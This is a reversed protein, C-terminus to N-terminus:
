QSTASNIHNEKAHMIAKHITQNNQKLHNLAEGAHSLCFRAQESDDVAIHGTAIAYAHLQNREMFKFMKDGVTYIWWADEGTVHTIGALTKVIGIRSAIRQKKTYSGIVATQTILRTVDWLRQEKAASDVCDMLGKYEIIGQLFKDKEYAMAWMDHSLSGAVSSVQTVRAGAIVQQSKEDFAIIYKSDVATDYVDVDVGSTDIPWSEQLVYDTRLQTYQRLFDQAQASDSRHDMVCVRIGRFASSYHVANILSIMNKDKLKLLITVFFSHFGEYGSIREAMM